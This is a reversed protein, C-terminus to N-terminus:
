GASEVETPANMRWSVDDSLDTPFVLPRQDPHIRNWHDATNFGVVAEGVMQERYLHLGKVMRHRPAEDVDIWLSMQKGDPRRKMFALNAKYPRETQKDQRVEEGAAEAFQKALLDLPDVPKPLPWGMKHAYEAVDKMSIEKKGTQEKYYRIFRQRKQAATAM